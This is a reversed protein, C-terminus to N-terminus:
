SSTQVISRGAHCNVNSESDCYQSIHAQSEASHIKVLMTFRRLTTNCIDNTPWSIFLRSRYCALDFRHRRDQSLIVALFFDPQSGQFFRSVSDESFHSIKTHTNGITKQNIHNSHRRHDRHRSFADIPLGPVSPYSCFRHQPRPTGAWLM